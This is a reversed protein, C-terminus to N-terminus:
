AAEEIIVVQRGEAPGGELAVTGVHGTATDIPQLTLATGTVVCAVPEWTREGPVGTDFSALPVSLGKGLAKVAAEKATWIALFMASRSEPDSSLVLGQERETLHTAALEMVEAVDRLREIDVGIRRGATVAIVALANTHSTNFDIGTKGTVEPRGGPTVRLDVMAPDVGLYRSLVRRYFAHRLIYRRVDAGARFRRARGQERDDLTSWAAAVDAAAGPILPWVHVAPVTGVGSSMVLDAAPPLLTATM